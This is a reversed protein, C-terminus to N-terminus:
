GEKRPPGSFDPLEASPMNWFHEFERRLFKVPLTGFIWQLLCAGRATAPARHRGTTALATVAWPTHRSSQRRHLNKEAGEADKQESFFRQFLLCRLYCLYQQHIINSQHITTAHSRKRQEQPSLIPQPPNDYTTQSQFPDRSRKSAARTKEPTPQTTEDQCNPAFRARSRSSPPTTM